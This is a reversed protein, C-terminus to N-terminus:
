LYLNVDSRQVRLENHLDVINMKGKGVGDGEEVVVDVCVSM